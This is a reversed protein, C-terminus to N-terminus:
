AVLVETVVHGIAGLVAKEAFGKWNGTILAQIFAWIWTAASIVHGVIRVVRKQNPTM